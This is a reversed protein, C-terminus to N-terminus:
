SAFPNKRAAQVELGPEAIGGASTGAEVGRITELDNEGRSQPQCLRGFGEASRRPNGCRKLHGNRVALLGRSPLQESAGEVEGELLTTGENFAAQCLSVRVM